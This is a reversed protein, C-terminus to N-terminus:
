KRALSSSVQRIAAACFVTTTLQGRARRTRVLRGAPGQLQHDATDGGPVTAPAASGGQFPGLHRPGHGRLGPMESWSQAGDTSRFLAADEVGAYVTDPDTSSPELHWVRKFEWPHPTGDYWQHTGPVGDYTFKNGVADWTKGGLSGYNYVARDGILETVGRLSGPATRGRNFITVDHGREVAYRVQHPGIFGTGRLILLRIRREAPQLAALGHALPGMAVAGGAAAATRIFERRNTAM